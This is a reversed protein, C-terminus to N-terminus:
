DEAFTIAEWTIKRDLQEYRISFIHHLWGAGGVPEDLMCYRTAVDTPPQKLPMPIIEQQGEVLVHGKNEMEQYMNSTKLAYAQRGPDNKHDDALTPIKATQVGILGNSKCQALQIFQTHQHTSHYKGLCAQQMGDLSPQHNRTSDTNHDKRNHHHDSPLPFNQMRGNEATIADLPGFYFGVM